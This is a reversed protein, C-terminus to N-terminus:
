AITKLALYNSYQFNELEENWEAIYILGDPIIRFILYQNSKLYNYVELLTIHADPYTGGYEFQIIDINNNKILNKAGMLVDLEAGETDIKLFNIHKISHDFTFKDLYTISVNIKQVPVDHLVPRSFLTSCDSGRVFFYNMEMRADCKGLGLNFTFVKNNFQNELQQLSKYSNPIPEFAYICCQSGTAQLAARSWGGVHAGADFVVDNKKIFSEIILKEGNKSFDCNGFGVNFLQPTNLYININQQAYYNITKEISGFNALLPMFIISLIGSMVIRTNKQM